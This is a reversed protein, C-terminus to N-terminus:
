IEFLKKIETSNSKKHKIIITKNVDITLEEQHTYVENNKVTISVLKVKQGVPINAFVSNDITNRTIYYNKIVSKIDKFVLFLMASEIEDKKDFSITLNTINQMEYFRDCNIWGLQTLKMAKYLTNNIEKNKVGKEIFEQENNTTSMRGNMENNEWDIIICSDLYKDKSRIRANYEGATMKIVQGSKLRLRYCQRSPPAAITNIIMGSEKSDNFLNGSEKWNMNGISDSKGYFLPMNKTSIKPFEVKITKGKRIKLTKGKSSLNIFYAGGSELLKDGSVTQANSLAIESQSHLEKLEITISDSVNLGKETELDSPVIFLITGKRGVIKTPNKGSVVYFQSSSDNVNIFKDIIALELKLDSKQVCLSNQKQASLDENNCGLLLISLFFLIGFTWDIKKTEIKM